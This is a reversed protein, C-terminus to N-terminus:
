SCSRALHPNPIPYTHLGTFSTQGGEWYCPIGLITGAYHRKVEQGNESVVIIKQDIEWKSWPVIEVLDNIKNGSHQTGDTSWAEMYWYDQRDGEVVGHVPAPSTNGPVEPYLVVRRGGKTKYKKTRDIM